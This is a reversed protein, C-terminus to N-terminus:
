VTYHNPFSVVTGYSRPEFRLPSMNTQLHITGKRCPHVGFLWRAALGRTLNTPPGRSRGLTNKRDLLGVKRLSQCSEKVGKPFSLVVFSCSNICGFRENQDDM